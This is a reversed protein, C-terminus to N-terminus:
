HFYKLYLFMTKVIFYNIFFIFNKIIILYDMKILYNTIKHNTFNFQNKLYKFYCYNSYSNIM